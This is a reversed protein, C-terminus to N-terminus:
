KKSMKACSIIAQIQASVPRSLSLQGTSVRIRRQTSSDTNTQTMNVLDILFTQLDYSEPVLLHLATQMRGSNKAVELQDSSEVSYATWGFDAEFEWIKSCTTTFRRVLRIYGTDQNIQIMADLDVFYQAGNLLADPQGGNFAQELEFNSQMDYQIWDNGEQFEWVATTNSHM